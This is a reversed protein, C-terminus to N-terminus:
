KLTDMRSEIEEKINEMHERLEDLEISTDGFLDIILDVIKKKKREGTTMM